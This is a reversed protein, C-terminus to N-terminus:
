LWFVCKKCSGEKEASISWSLTCFSHKICNPWHLYLVCCYRWRQAKAVARIWGILELASRGKWLFQTLASPFTCQCNILATSLLQSASHMVTGPRPAQVAVDADSTIASGPPFASATPSSCCLRVSDLSAGLSGPLLNNGQIIQREMMSSCYKTCSSM